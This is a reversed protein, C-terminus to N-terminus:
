DNLTDLISNINFSSSNTPAKLCIFQSFAASDTICNNDVQTTSFINNQNDDTHNSFSARHALTNQSFNAAPNQSPSVVHSRENLQGTLGKYMAKNIVSECFLKQMNDM